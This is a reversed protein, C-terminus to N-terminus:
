QLHGMSQAMQRLAVAVQRLPDDWDNAHVQRFLRAHPYWPSHEGQIGWRWDPVLKLLVWCPVGLAGALHAHSTDISIVLDMQVLAAAEDEFSWQPHVMGLQQAAGKEEDTLAEIPLGYFEVLGIVGESAFAEALQRLETRRIGEGASQGLWALGVRMCTKPRDVWAMRQALRSQNGPCIDIFKASWDSLNHPTVGLLWPLSELQVFCDAGEPLTDESFEVCAMQGGAKKVGDLLSPVVVAHHSLFCLTMRVGQKAMHLLFRGYQFTDGAGNNGIVVMHRNYWDSLPGGVWEPVGMSVAHRKFGGVASRITLRTLVHPAAELYEGQLALVEGLGWHARPEDPEMSLVERFDLAALDLRAMAKWTAAQWLLAEILAQQDGADRASRCEAQAVTLVEELQGSMLRNQQTLWQVAKMSPALALVRRIAHLHGEPDNVLKYAMALQVWSRIDHPAKQVSLLTMNMAEQPRRAHLMVMGIASLEDAPVDENKSWRRTLRVLMPQILSSSGDIHPLLLELARILWSSDDDESLGKKFADAADLWDGRQAADSLQGLWLPRMEASPALSPLPLPPSTPDLPRQASMGSLEAHLQVLVQRWNDLEPARLLRAQPYWANPGGMDQWRWDVQANLLVWPSLGLAGALHAYVTDITVVVDMLTMAAAVEDFRWREQRMGMKKAAVQDEPGWEDYQLSFWEVGPWEFEAFLHLPISREAISSRTGTWALAVRLGRAPGLQSRVQQLVDLDPAMCHAQGLTEAQDLRAGLLGPLDMIDCVWDRVPLVGREPMVELDPHISQLLRETRVQAIVTVSGSCALLRPLYRAFHFTDGIGNETTVLLHKNQLANLDGTWLRAGMSQARHGIRNAWGTDRRYGFLAFGRPYDGLALLCFALNFAAAPHGTNQWVHELTERAQEYRGARRLVAGLTHLVLGKDSEAWEHEHLLALAEDFRGDQALAEALGAHAMANGPDISLAQRYDSAADDKQFFQCNIDGRLCWLMANDPERSIAHSLLTVASMTSARNKSAMLHRVLEKTQDAKGPHQRVRELALPVAADLDGRAALAMILSDLAKASTEFRELWLRAAVALQIFDHRNECDICWAKFMWEQVREKPLQCLAILWSRLLAPGGPTAHVFPLFQEFDSAELLGRQAVEMACDLLPEIADPVVLWSRIAQRALDANDPELRQARTLHVAGERLQGSALHVRGLLALAQAHDSHMVLLTELDDQAGSLDGLHLRCWARNFRLGARWGDMLVARDLDVLAQAWQAQDMAALAKDFLAQIEGLKPM